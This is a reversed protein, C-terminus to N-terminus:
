AERETKDKHYKVMIILSQFVLAAMHIHCIHLHHDRNRLSTKLMSNVTVSHLTLYPLGVPSMTVQIFKRFPFVESHRENPKVMLM